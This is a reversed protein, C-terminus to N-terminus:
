STVRFPITVEVVLGSRDKRNYARISGSHREVISRCIALGLGNAGSDNGQDLREFRDFIRPLQDEPVGKGEDQISFVLSEKRVSVDLEITMGSDSFRLANSILNLLVQRILVPDLTWILNTPSKMQFIIGRDEALLNVDCRLDELYDGLVIRRLEVRMVGADSRALFLLDDIMQNLREVEEMQDSLAKEREEADLDPHNLMRETQLRLISLPTRFEHSAEATFRKVQEYSSELRDLMDNLLVAMREVEDGTNPVPIRDSFRSAGIKQATQQISAIPRLALRSLFYGFSISLIFVAGCVLFSAREYDDFLAHASDLWSVVHVDLGGVQEELSRIWGLEPDEYSMRAHGHLAEPLDYNGLNASRYLVHGDSDAVQFFYLSADLEAHQHVAAIRDEISAEPGQDLIRSRIEELEVENLLDIGRVLSYELYFRGGVLIVAVTATAVLAYWLTLRSTLSKM